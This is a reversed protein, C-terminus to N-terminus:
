AFDGISTEVMASARFTCQGSIPLLGQKVEGRGKTGHWDLDMVRVAV